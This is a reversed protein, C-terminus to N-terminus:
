VLCANHFCVTGFVSQLCKACLVISMSNEAMAISAKQCYACAKKRIFFVSKEVYRKPHKSISLELFVHKNYTARRQCGSWKQRKTGALRNHAGGRKRDWGGGGTDTTHHGGGGEKAGKEEGTELLRNTDGSNNVCEGGGVGMGM